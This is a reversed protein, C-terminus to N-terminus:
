ATILQLVISPNAFVQEKREDLIAANLAIRDLPKGKADMGDATPGRHM